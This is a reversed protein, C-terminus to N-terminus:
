GFKEEAVKGGPAESTLRYRPSTGSHNCRSRRLPRTCRRVHYGLQGRRPWSLHADLIDLRCGGDMGIDRRCSRRCCHRHEDLGDLLRSRRFHVDVEPLPGPLRGLLSRVAGRKAEMVRTITLSTVPAVSVQRREKQEQGHIRQQLHHTSGNGPRSPGDLGVGEM